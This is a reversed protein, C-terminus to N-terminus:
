LVNGGKEVDNIYQIVKYYYEFSTYRSEQYIISTAFCKPIDM